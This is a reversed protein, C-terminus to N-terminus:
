NLESSHCESQSVTQIVYSKATCVIRQDSPTFIKHHAVSLGRCLLLRQIVEFADYIVARFVIYATVALAAIEGQVAATIQAFFLEAPYFMNIIVVAGPKAWLDAVYAQYVPYPEPCRNDHRAVTYEALYERMVKRILLYYFAQLQFM